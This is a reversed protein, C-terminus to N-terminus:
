TWTFNRCSERCSWAKYSMLQSHLSAIYFTPDNPEIAMETKRRAVFLLRNFDADSMDAPANIFIQEILPEMGAAQEGLVDSAVPVKRWGCVELGKNALLDELTKKAM